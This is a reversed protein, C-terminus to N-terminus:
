PRIRDYVEYTADYPNKEDKSWEEKSVLKWQAVDIQPFRSEGEFEGHVRTLYLRDAFPLAHTYVAEGGCVFVEPDEATKEMVEEWSMAIFCEPPAFFDKQRTLIVNKRNPLPKGLRAMISDFTKRGMVVTNGTTVEKFHKLDRPLYWPIENAKGIVNNESTAVIISLM